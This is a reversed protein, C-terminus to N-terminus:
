SGHTRVLDEATVDDLEGTVPLGRHQQFQKVAAELASEDDAAGLFGLNRLRTASGSPVHVPDLRGFQLEHVIADDGEGVRLTGTRDSPRMPARVVGDDPVTGSTTRDEIRLEFPKGSLPKGNFALAMEFELPIGKRRFRHRRETAVSARGPRLAPVHVRDGPRLVHPAGRKERLDANEHHNWITEWFHGAHEAIAHICGDEGVVLEGAGVPGPERQGPHPDQPM